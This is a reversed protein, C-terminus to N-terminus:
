RRECARAIELTPALALCAPQYVGDLCRVECTGHNVDENAAARSRLSAATEPDSHDAMRRIALEADLKMLTIVHDCARDCATVRDPADDDACAALMTLLLVRKM